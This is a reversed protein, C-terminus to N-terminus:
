FLKIKLSSKAGGKVEQPFSEPALKCLTFALGLCIILLCLM